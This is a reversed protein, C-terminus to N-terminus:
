CHNGFISYIIEQSLFIILFRSALNESMMRCPLHKFFIRNDTEAPDSPKANYYRTPLTQLIAMILSAVTVDWPRM